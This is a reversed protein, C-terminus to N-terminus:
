GGRRRRVLKRAEDFWVVTSAVLVVLVWDWATLDATGFVRQVGDVHVAAAQLVVVGGLSAWLKGNRLSTRSFVSDVESRACLANFVQYIVFTTFAVALAHEQSGTERGYALVGLTGAAMVAGTGVVRGLRRGTLIAESQDRPPRDMASRDPPDVGLAMAPPGDMILNVWLVQIATFPVPLGALQAGILSLIAGANTSLQFRVFKVINDYIGRGAEVARVITTFDDDTLVMAAAEKSVETGTIGMAIGIDASRLAPADNVGDGTMAVVHGNRRLAQVLRVKHEPSVRAFVAAQESVEALEGDDMADLEAGTVTGGTLGLQAAIATATAAHDGTIMKVAVGARRCLDIAQRAEPRPPDLLGVLGVLTLDSALALRTEEDGAAELDDPDVRREAVALVRLGEGALAEIDAQVEALASDDLVMPGSPMAVSGCRRLVVDAGGKVAVLLGEEEERHFTAMLKRASDFPVEAVRPWSEDLRDADIGAKAGLTVLAAETPDGIPRGDVVRSDNCAVALQAVRRVAAAAPRGAADTIEGSPEYGEGTVSSRTGGSVVARATMQNMTLTGTKDSCIVTTSGLTEVSALRKVIAGRKAMQHVGVALTVTVVAPLGEPIAAVALAVASLATDAVSEGRALGLLFFIAVAVGGVVALRTGLTALQRQLPTAEHPAAQLLGALQGIETGMGTSTVLVEGRGRTVVTNMFAMSTREALVADPEVPADSKTVPTSEGTLASEDVELSSAVVVRGDAPVRDGAELLVVDGVVVSESSVERVRGDRRVKATAVLMQKLAALSREARNEQLFGLVANAVLVVGIVITDKYDGVLGALVAACILVVILVNRFQDLFVMWAPRTAADDLRNPGEAELRAEAVSDTLGHGPHAGIQDAADAVALAHWAPRDPTPVSPDARDVATLL